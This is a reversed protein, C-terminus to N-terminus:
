LKAGCNGCFLAGESLINGCYPCLNEKVEPEIAGSSEQQFLPTGCSVCYLADDDAVTGCHPCKKEEPESLKEIEDFVWKIDEPPNAKQREYFYVGLARYLEDLEDEKEEEELSNLVSKEQVDKNVPEMDFILETNDEIM